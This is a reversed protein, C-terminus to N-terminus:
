AHRKSSGAQFREGNAGDRAWVRGVESSELDQGFPKEVILRIWSAECGERQAVGDCYTKLGTCM